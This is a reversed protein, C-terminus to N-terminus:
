DEKVLLISQLEKIEKKNLGIGKRLYTDIDGYTRKAEEKAANLFGERASYITTIAEQLHAPLRYAYRTAAPINFYNNSLQYDNMITEENIGLAALVLASVIGTTGKGSTCHMVLPYNQKDLLVDFVQRLEKTRHTIMKRNIREVIRYVTDSNVKRAQIDKLIGELNGTELPIRVVRFDKERPDPRSPAGTNGRLDIITKIGIRHLEETASVGPRDIKGARYLMGWRVRKHLAYAHYGGLDRFNQIGPININRTAAKVRYEDNFVLSYYYRRTPDNTIVTTWQRSIPATAVPTNEPINEPHTSAYVKVNGPIAPTTEWKVICNGINNEECVVSIRPDVSNCAALLLTAAFCNILRKYM